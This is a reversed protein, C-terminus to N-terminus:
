WWLDNFYEKFLDFGRSARDQRASIEGISMNKEEIDQDYPDQSKYKFAFIIDDLISQWNEMSNLRAPYGITTKKFETLSRVILNSYFADLNWLDM